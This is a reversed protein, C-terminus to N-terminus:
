DSPGRQVIWLQFHPTESPDISARITKGYGDAMGAYTQLTDSDIDIEWGICCSHRCKDAICSFRPYYAPARLYANM